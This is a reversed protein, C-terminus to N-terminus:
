FLQICCHICHSIIPPHRWSPAVSVTHGFKDIVHLNGPGEGNGIQRFRSRGFDIAKDGADGHIGPTGDNQNIEPGAAGIRGYADAIDSHGYTAEDIADTNLIFSLAKRLEESCTNIIGQVLLSSTLTQLLYEIKCAGATARLLQLALAPHTTAFSAIVTTEMTIRATAAISHASQESFPTGLHTWLDRDTVFPVVALLQFLVTLGESRVNRQMSRWFLNRGTEFTNFPLRQPYNWSQRASGRWWPLYNKLFNYNQCKEVTKLLKIIKIHYKNNRNKM